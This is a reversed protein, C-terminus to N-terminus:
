HWRNCQGPCNHKASGGANVRLLMPAISMLLPAISLVLLRGFASVMPARAMMPTMAHPVRGSLSPVAPLPDPISVSVLLVLASVLVILGLLRVLASLALLCALAPRRRLIRILAAHRLVVICGEAGIVHVGTLDILLAQPRM